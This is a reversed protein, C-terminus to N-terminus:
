SVLPNKNWGLILKSMKGREINCACTINETEKIYICLIKGIDIARESTTNVKTIGNHTRKWLWSFESLKQELNLVNKM